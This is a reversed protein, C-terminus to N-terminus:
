LNRTQAVTYTSKNGAEYYIRMNMEALLGMMLLQLGGLYLLIGIYFLPNHNIHIYEPGIFRQALSIAWLLTGALWARVAGGGFFYIPKQGFKGLFRAVLLDLAVKQIRGFGYKSQGHLRPHHMVAVETVRAGAMAAYAPIFRHMEGYLQVDKM